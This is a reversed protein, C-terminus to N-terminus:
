TSISEWFWEPDVFIYVVCVQLYFVWSGVQAEEPPGNGGSVIKFFQADLGPFEPCAVHIHNIMSLLRTSSLKPLCPLRTSASRSLASAILYAILKDVSTPLTEKWRWYDWWQVGQHALLCRWLELLRDYTENTERSYRRWFFAIKEVSGWAKRGNARGLPKSADTERGVRCWSNNRSIPLSVGFLVRLYLINPM